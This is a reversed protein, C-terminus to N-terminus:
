EKIAKGIVYGNKQLIEIAKPIEMEMDQDVVTFEDDDKALHKNILEDDIKAAHNKILEFVKLLQPNGNDCVHSAYSLPSVGNINQKHVDAGHDLMIRVLEIDETPLINFFATTGSKDCVNPDAGYHLLMKAREFDTAYFLATTGYEDRKNLYDRICCVNLLRSMCVLNYKTALHLPTEGDKNRTDVNAGRGLLIDTMRVSHKKLTVAIHLPTYGTIDCANVNAGLHLMMEVVDIREHKVAIHLPTYNTGDYKVENVDKCNVYLYTIIEITSGDEIAKKLLSAVFEM